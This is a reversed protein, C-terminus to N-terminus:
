FGHKSSFSALADEFISAGRIAEEHAIVLPPNIRVPTAYSMTLLGRKLCEEFIERCLSNSLPNGTRPDVLEVGILLGRGWVDGIVPRRGAAERLRGLLAEGVTKAREVLNEEMMISIAAHAAAAALPNGGYSSSSGSPAAFPESSAVDDGAVIGSVPFGGGMGKGITMVDPVVGEHEVAFWRGTRGFGTIMEDAILLAGLEDAIERLGRLFGPPPIINGATGQIPEVILAAVAGSTSRRILERLFELSHAACDHTAKAGFPCRRPDPFPSLYLGPSLPGYGHKFKDGSVGLVGGTKGHFGGWFGVIEYKKTRSKALRVAAEVAEAGSSYLQTRTLGEPAVRSLKKLFDLRHRSTFSGASVKAVQEAVMRAYRPHGHGVSAVGVGAMFDLYKRGDVDYLWAGEGRDMALRSFLAISQLGPAIYRQEEEFLAGSRIGPPAVAEGDKTSASM